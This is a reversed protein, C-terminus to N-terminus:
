LYHEQSSCYNQKGAKTILIIRDQLGITLYRFEGRFIVPLMKAAVPIEMAATESPCNINRPIETIEKPINTCTVAHIMYLDWIFCFSLFTNSNQRRKKISDNQAVRTNSQRPMMRISRQDVWDKLLKLLWRMSASKKWANSINKQANTM